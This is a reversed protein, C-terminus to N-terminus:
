TYALSKTVFEVYCIKGGVPEISLYVAVNSAGLYIFSNILICLTYIYILCFPTAQNKIVHYLIFMVVFDYVFFHFAFFIELIFFM